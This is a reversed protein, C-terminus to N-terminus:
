EKKSDEEQQAKRKRDEEMQKLQQAMARSTKEVVLGNGFLHKNKEDKHLSVDETIPQYLGMEKYLNRLRENEAFTSNKQIFLQLDKM